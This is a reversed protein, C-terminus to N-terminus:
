LDFRGRAGISMWVHSKASDVGGGAVTGQGSLTVHQTRYQGLGLSIFPGALFTQTVRYDAGGQLETEWGRLTGALDAVLPTPPPGPAVGYVFNKVKFTASEMGAALGLWPEFGATPGLGYALQVGYRVINPRDCAAGPTSCLQALKSGTQGFGYAYYIGGSLAGTFRWTADLQIPVVGKALDKEKFTGFGSQEYANGSPLAYGARLGVSVQAV